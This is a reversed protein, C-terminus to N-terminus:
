TKIQTNTRKKISNIYEDNEQVSPMKWGLQEAEEFWQINQQYLKDMGQKEEPTYSGKAKVEALKQSLLKSYGNGVKIMAYAYNPYYELILAAIDISEKWQGRKEFHESLLIAMVAISQKKTLPQLYVGNKIAANTITSKERYFQDTVPQGKDTAELNFYKGTSPDKFKVFVHLPATSLTVDLGLQDALIAFLIPMSICNGKKKQLYTSILKGKIAQGFPDAFDYQFPQFGNWNGSEYLFAGLSLIKDIPLMDPAIGSKFASVMAGIDKITNNVDISPDILKDITLKAVAFDIDVEPKSLLTELIEVASNEVIQAAAVIQIQWALVAIFILYKLCSGYGFPM